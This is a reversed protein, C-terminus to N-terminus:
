GKKVVWLKLRAVVEPHVKVDVTFVGLNKIPEELLVMKRDIEIKEGRLAEEIDMTTVSGFLKDNEGAQRSLSLSVGEIRKALAQADKLASARRHSALLKQHNIIKVNREDALIAKRRPLLFNRGYGDAVNV